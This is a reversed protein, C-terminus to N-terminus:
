NYWGPPAFFCVVAFISGRNSKAVTVAGPEIFIGDGRPCPPFEPPTPWPFWGVGTSRQRSPEIPRRRVRCVLSEPTATQGPMRMARGYPPLCPRGAPMSRAYPPYVEPVHPLRPRLQVQAGVNPYATGKRERM